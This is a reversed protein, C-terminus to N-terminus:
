RAPRRWICVGDRHVERVRHLPVEHATGDPGVTTFSFRNGPALHIQELPVSVIEHRLRDWYGVTFRGRGFGPDWRIRDLLAEIPIM